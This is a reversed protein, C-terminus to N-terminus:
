LWLSWLADSPSLGWCVNCRHGPEAVGRTRSLYKQGSQLSFDTWKNNYFKLAKVENTLKWDGLITNEIMSGAINETQNHTFIHTKGVACVFESFHRAKEALIAPSVARSLFMWSDTLAWILFFKAFLLHFTLCVRVRYSIWINNMNEQLFCSSFKLSWYM